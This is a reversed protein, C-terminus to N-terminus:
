TNMGEEELYHLLKKAVDNYGIIIVKRVLYEQHRFYHRIMLYIFRNVLLMVGMSSLTVSIFLRSLQFQQFFYLYLMVIGLWGFYVRTTRRSFMEFTNIYKENYVNGVWGVLLWALNLFLWFRAYVVFHTVPILDSLWLQTVLVILNLTILDLGALVLQLFRIFRYNM